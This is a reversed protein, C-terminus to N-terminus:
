TTPPPSSTRSPSAPREKVKKTIDDSQNVATGLYRLVKDEQSWVAPFGTIAGSGAAASALGAAGKLVARRSLGKATKAHKMSM